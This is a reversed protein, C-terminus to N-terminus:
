KNSTDTIQVSLDKNNKNLNYYRGLISDYSNKYVYYKIMKRHIKYITNWHIHKCIDLESLFKWSINQKLVKLVCPIIIYM